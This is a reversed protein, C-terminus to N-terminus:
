FFHIVKITHIFPVCRCLVSSAAVCYIRYKADVDDVGPASRHYCRTTYILIIFFHWLLSRCIFIIFIFLIIIILFFILIHHLDTWILTRCNKTQDYPSSTNARWCEQLRNMRKTTTTPTCWLLLRMVDIITRSTVVIKPGHYNFEHM